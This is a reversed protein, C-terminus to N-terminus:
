RVADRLEQLHVAKIKRAAPNGDTYTLPSLNLTQRAADLAARLETLHVAKIRTGTALAADTFSFAVLGAAARSANIAQRLELVHLAKVKTVYPVLPDDSFLSVAGGPFTTAADGPSLASVGTGNRARVAFLVTTLPAVSPRTYATGTVTAATKWFPGGDWMRVDYSTAGAVANWSVHATTASTGHAVVGSPTAPPAPDDADHANHVALAFTQTGGTGTEFKVTVTFTSGAAAPSLRIFEVNNKRDLTGGNCPVAVSEENAASLSNGVYRETCSAGRYASLDLDNVIPNTTMEGVSIQAPVDTWTLVVVVPRAGDHVKYTNSWSTGPVSLSHGQDFYSRAPYPELVDQLSIRGFGQSQSPIAAITTAPNKADGGRLRDAYDKGGKMSRASMVMMAKILAPSAAGPTASYARSALLAAATAVPAAFSTGTGIAYTDPPLISSQNFGPCFGTPKVTDDRLGAVNSAPAILDPKFWGSDLTGRKSDWEVNLVSSSGATQCGWAEAASRPTEAGGVSIVNKATAPAVTMSSVPFESCFVKARSQAQNGASVVLTIPTLGDFTVGNSDRVARDFDRSLISYKGDSTQPECSPYGQVIYENYSHNQVFTGSSRADHASHTVPTLSALPRLNIKTVFVGASPAVGTGYLFGGSDAGSAPNGAMVSAVFTGHAEDDDFTTPTHATTGAVFDRGYTVRSNPLDAPGADAGGAADLPGAWFGTDALGVRFGEAFLNTCSPCVSELWAKYRGGPGILAGAADVHPGLSMAAREDSLEVQPFQSVAFVLREDVIRDIDAGDFTGRVRLEESREGVVETVLDVLSLRALEDLVKSSGSTNAISVLLDSAIGREKPAAQTKLAAHFVDHFQVFELRSIAVMEEPRAAVLYANYPVYQILVAGEAVVAAEWEATIPGAFQLIFLGPSGAVAPPGLRKGPLSAATGVRVDIRGNPLEIREFDDRVTAELGQEAARRMLEPLHDERVYVATASAYEHIVQADLDSIIRPPTGRNADIHRLVVKKHTRSPVLARVAASPMMMTVLFGAIGLRVLANRRSGARAQCEM